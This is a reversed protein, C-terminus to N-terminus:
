CSAFVDIAKFLDGIQAKGTYPNLLVARIWRHGRYLPLSLFINQTQLLYAQLETNWDHWRAPSVQIPIGRFCIINM